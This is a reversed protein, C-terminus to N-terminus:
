LIQYDSPRHVNSVPRGTWSCFSFLVCFHIWLLFPCLCILCRV